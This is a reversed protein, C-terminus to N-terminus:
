TKSKIAILAPKGQPEVPVHAANTWEFVVECLGKKVEPINELLPRFVLEASQKAQTFLGSDADLKKEQAEKHAALRSIVNKTPHQNFLGAKEDYLIATEPYMEHSLMEIRPMSVIIKNHRMDVRIEKADFGLKITGDMTYIAKGKTFRLLGKGPEVIVATYHYVM